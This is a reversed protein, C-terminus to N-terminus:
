MCRLPWSYLSHFSFILVTTGLHSSPFSSLLKSETPLHRSTFVHMNRKKVQYNNIAAVVSTTLETNKVMYGFTKLPPQALLFFLM